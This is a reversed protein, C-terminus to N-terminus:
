SKKGFNSMDTPNGTLVLYLMDYYLYLSEYIYRLEQCSCDYLCKNERLLRIDKELGVISLILEEKKRM